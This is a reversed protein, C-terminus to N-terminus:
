KKSEKSLSESTCEWERKRGVKIFHLIELKGLIKKLSILYKWLIFLQYQYSELIIAWRGLLPVPLSLKQFVASFFSFFIQDPLCTYQLFSKANHARSVTFQCTHHVAANLLDPGALSSGTDQMVITDDSSQFKKEFNIKWFENHFIHFFHRAKKGGTPIDSSIETWYRDSWGGKQNSTFLLQNPLTSYLYRM